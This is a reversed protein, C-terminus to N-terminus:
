ASGANGERACAGDPSVNLRIREDEEIVERIGSRFEVPIVSNELADNRPVGRNIMAYTLTLAQYFDM